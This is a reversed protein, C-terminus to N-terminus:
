AGTGGAAAAAAHAVDNGGATVVAVLARLEQALHAARAESADRAREAAVLSSRLDTFSNHSVASPKDSSTRVLAQKLAANERRLQECERVAKVAERARYDGVEQEALLAALQSQERGLEQHLSGIEQKYRAVVAASKEAAVQSAAAAANAADREREAKAAREQAM